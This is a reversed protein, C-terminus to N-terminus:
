SNPQASERRRTPVFRQVLQWLRVAIWYLAVAILISFFYHLALVYRHEIHLPSHVCLYYAPVCLLIALARGRGALSLLVIGILTLPLMWSTKFFKQGTKVVARPYRTWLYSATGLRFIELSGIEIVSRAENSEANVLAIRIRDEGGNVFPLQLVTMDDQTTANTQLADPVAASALTARKDVSEVRIVMRGQEVRVPLRLVYDSKRQVNIPASAFPKGQESNDSVIRLAQNDETLSAQAQGAPSTNSASLDVPSASWALETENTIEPSNTVSPEVSVISVQEYELMLAARRLMVGLFWLKNSRIVAWARAMRLREREIGDPRYLDAAYDPRNYLQAEQRSAADDYAELGFKREPDYDAIGAVLNQGAGLSLPIFSRFVIANRITIPAIILLAAGVFAIAYRWRKGREFLVPILLCLFPALLLANARLWCSVGIAAGAAMMTVIHPRKSARVILYVAALIPLGSLSDPLLLLSSYALQPSFAVLLGAIIAVGKPLLEITILFVLLAAAADGLIQFLRLATDSSGSLKYILAMVLPYGPTHMLIGPDPQPTHGRVFSSIDGNLLFQAEEKYRETLRWMTKDITLWNNQWQLLRVGVAILFISLCIIATRKTLSGPQLDGAPTFRSILRQLRLAHSSFKARIKDVDM